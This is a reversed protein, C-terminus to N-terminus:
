KGPDSQLNRKQQIFVFQVFSLANSKHRTIRMPIRLVPICFNGKQSPEWKKLVAKAFETGLLSLLDRDELKMTKFFSKEANPWEEFALHKRGEWDKKSPFSQSVTGEQFAVPTPPPKGRLTSESGLTRTQRRCVQWMDKSSTIKRRTISCSMRKRMLAVNRLKRVPGYGVDSSMLSPSSGTLFCRHCLLHRNQEREALDSNGPRAISREGTRGSNVETPKAASLQSRRSRQLTGM